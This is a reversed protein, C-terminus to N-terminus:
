LFNLLLSIKDLYCTESYFYHRILSTQSYYNIQLLIIISYILNSDQPDHGFESIWSWIRDSITKYINIFFTSLIYQYIKINIMMKNLM